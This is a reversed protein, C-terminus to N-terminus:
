KEANKNLDWTIPISSDPSGDPKAPVYEFEVQAFNIGIQETAREDSGSSATNISSIVAGKMKIKVYELAKGGTNRRVTLTADKLHAGNLCSKLLIPTSRDIHKTIMLDQVDAKGHGSSGGGQITGRQSMGWSWSLVEIEDKHKDDRSEGKIDAVKLFIDAAM